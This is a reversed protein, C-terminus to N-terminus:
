SLPKFLNPVSIIRVRSLAVFKLGLSQESKGLDIVIKDITQGAIYANCSANDPFLRIADAFRSM